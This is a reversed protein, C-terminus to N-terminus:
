YLSKLLNDSRLGNQCRVKVKAKGSCAGTIGNVEPEACVVHENRFYLNKILKSDADKPLGDIEISVYEVENEQV